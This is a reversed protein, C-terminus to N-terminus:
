ICAAHGGSYKCHLSSQPYVLYHQSRGSKSNISKIRNGSIEVTAERIIKGSVVDVINISDILLLKDQAFCRSVILLLAIVKYTM